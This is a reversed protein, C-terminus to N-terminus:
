CLLCPEVIAFSHCCAAHYLKARLDLLYAVIFNENRRRHRWVRRLQSHATISTQAATPHLPRRMVPGVGVGAESATESAVGVTSGVKTGWTNVGAGVFVGAGVGVGATCM